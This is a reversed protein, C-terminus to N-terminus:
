INCNYIPTQTREDIRRSILDMKLLKEILKRGNKDFTSKSEGLVKAIDGESVWIGSFYECIINLVIERKTRKHRIGVFLYELEDARPRKTIIGEGYLDNLMKPINNDHKQIDLSAIIEKETLWVEKENTLKTVFLVRLIPQRESNSTIRIFESLISKLNKIEETLQIMQTQLQIAADNEQIDRLENELSRIEKELTEMKFELVPKEDDNLTTMYKNHTSEWKKILLKYENQLSKRRTEDFSM